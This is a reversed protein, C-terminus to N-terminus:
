AWERCPSVLLSGSPSPERARLVKWGECVCAGAEGVEDGDVIFAFDTDVLCLAILGESLRNDQGSRQGGDAVAFQAVLHNILPRKQPPGSTAFGIADPLLRDLDRSEM